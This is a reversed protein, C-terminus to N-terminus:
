SYRFGNYNLLILDEIVVICQGKYILRINLKRGTDKYGEIGIWRDSRPM